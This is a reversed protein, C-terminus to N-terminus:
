DGQLLAVLNERAQARREAGFRPSILSTLDSLVMVARWAVLLGDDLPAEERYGDLIALRDDRRPWRIDFAPHSIYADGFGILGAYEKTAPDVFTHEPGPNSHLAVLASAAPVASMVREILTEPSVPLEWVGDAHVAPVAQEFGGLLRARFDDNSRDGPFLPSQQFPDQDISHLRRLARGLARLVERRQDGQLDLHRAAVGPMRTMCIYEVDGERGYGLVRPVNIEPYRALESLFFVEKELSTRPRLRHPRQVKLVKDEDVLYARAEGGSEDVERVAAAPAHRRVLALVYKPELVPDPANPQPYM